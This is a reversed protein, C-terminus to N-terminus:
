AKFDQIARLLDTPHVQKTRLEFDDGKSRAEHLLDSTSKQGSFLLVKRRPHIAKFQVGLARRLCL